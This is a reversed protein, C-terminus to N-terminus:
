GPLPVRAVDQRAWRARKALLMFHAGFDFSVLHAPQARFQEVAKTRDGIPYFVGAEASKQKEIVILDDAKRGLQDSRRDHDCQDEVRKGIRNDSLNGVSESRTPAPAMREH